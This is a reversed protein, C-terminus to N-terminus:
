LEASITYYADIASQFRAEGVGLVQAALYLSRTGNFHGPQGCNTTQWTGIKTAIGVKRMEVPLSITGGINQGAGGGYGLLSVDNTATGGIQVYYRQCLQLEISYPRFEFPTAIPGEEVQVLAVDINFTTTSVPKIYFALYNDAGITKGSISPVDVVSTYRTWSTTLTVPVFSTNVGTSGGTGFMQGLHYNIASSSSSKAWFSVTVKKGALTRVGEIRQSLETYVQGAAATTQTMNLYFEPEGPVDTQGITFSQRTVTRSGGTGNFGIYWRDAVYQTSTPSFSTGRQWISFDGNIIKNRFMGLNGASVYGPISSTGVVLSNNSFAATHVGGCTVGVQSAGVHYIGTNTDGQWTYSPALSTDTSNASIQSSLSLSGINTLNGTNDVRTTSGTQLVSTSVNSTIVNSTNIVTSNINSTWINSTNLNSTVINSSNLLFISLNSTSINSASLNSTTLNSTWLTGTGDLKMYQTTNGFWRFSDNATTGPMYFVAGNNDNSFGYISTQTVNATTGDLKMIKLGRIALANNFAVNGNFTTINSSITLSSNSNQVVGLLINQSSNDTYIMVDDEKSNAFIDGVNSALDISASLLSM